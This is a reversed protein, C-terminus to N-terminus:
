KKDAGERKPIEEFRIDNEKAYEFAYSDKPASIVLKSCGKFADKGIESVRDTFTVSTLNNCNMFAYDGITGLPGDFIVSSLNPCDVFASKGIDRIFWRPQVLVTSLRRCSSFAFAGIYDLGSNDGCIKVNKVSVCGAFANAEIVVINPINVETLRECGAFASEGIRLLTGSFQVGSLSTCEYFAYDGVSKVGPSWRSIPEQYPLDINILNGCHSFAYERIEMVNKHLKVGTLFDCNEFASRGIIEVEEPITPVSEDGIYKILFNYWFQKKIIFDSEM